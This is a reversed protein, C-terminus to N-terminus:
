NFPLINLICLLIKYLIEFYDWDSLFICFSQNTANRLNFDCLDPPSFLNNELLRSPQGPYGKDAAALM